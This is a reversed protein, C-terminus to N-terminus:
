SGRCSTTKTNRVQTANSLISAVWSFSDDKSQKKDNDVFLEFLRRIYYGQLADGVQVVKRAGKPDRTVNSLLIVSLEVTRNEADKFTISLLVATPVLISDILRSVVHNNIMQQLFQPDISM